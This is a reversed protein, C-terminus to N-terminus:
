EAVTDETLVVTLSYGSSTISGSTNYPIYKTGGQNSRVRVVISPPTTGGFTTALDGNSDTQGNFLPIDVL